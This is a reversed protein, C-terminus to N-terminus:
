RSLRVEATLGTRSVIWAGVMWASRTGPIAAMDNGDFSQPGILWRRGNWLSMASVRIGNRGFPAFLFTPGIAAPPAPLQRWRSGNWHWPRQRKSWENVIWVNAPAVAAVGALVTTGMKPMHVRSWSGAVWRYAAIQGRVAGSRPPLIGVVWFNAPGSGSLGTMVFKPPLALASWQKGNWHMVQCTPCSPVGFWVDSPGLVAAQGGGGGIPLTTKHWRSGDWRFAAGSGQYAGFVWVDSPSSARVELPRLGTAPLARTRWRRGGWHLLYGRAAANLGRIGVAWADSKSDATVSSLGALGDGPGRWAVRWLPFESAAPADSALASGAMLGSSAIALMTMFVATRRMVIGQM